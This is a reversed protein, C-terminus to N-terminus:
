IFPKSFYVRMLTKDAGHALELSNGIAKFDFVIAKYIFYFGLSGMCFSSASCLNPHIKYWSEAIKSTRM